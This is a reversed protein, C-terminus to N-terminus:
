SREGEKRVGLIYPVALVVVVIMSLVAIAGGIGFSYTKFATQYAVYPLTATVTGPGGATMVYVFDFSRFAYLVSLTILVVLTARIMPVVVRLHMQAGNAGDIAAAELVESPVGLLGGRIILVAFPLSAWAAVLSVSWMALDPSSLWNVKPLGLATIIANVAGDGALLFKWVSGSVLPPLAWVLVMLSLAIDAIRGGRALVVAFFYGLVLNSVLIVLTFQATLRTALWFGDDSLVKAFNEAGTFPWDGILNTPGVESLSMRVLDALPYISLAALVLAAPLLYLGSGLASRGAHLASRRPARGVARTAGTTVTM